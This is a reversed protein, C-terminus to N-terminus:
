GNAICEAVSQHRQSIRKSFQTMLWTGVQVTHFQLQLAHHTNNPPPNAGTPWIADLKLTGYHFTGGLAYANGDFAYGAVRHCQLSIWGRACMAGQHFAQSRLRVRDPYTCHVKFFLNPSIPHATSTSPLIQDSLEELIDPDLGSSNAACYLGPTPDCMSVSSVARPKPNDLSM